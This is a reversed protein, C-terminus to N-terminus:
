KKEPEVFIIVKRGQSIYEVPSDLRESVFRVPVFTSGGVQRMPADLKVVSGNVLASGSDVNLRITTTGKQINVEKKAGNWNVKAGLKESVFRVPVYTRGDRVFPAAGLQFSKGEGTSAAKSGIALRITQGMSPGYGDAQLKKFIDATKTGAALDLYNGNLELGYDIRGTDYDIVFRHNQIPELNWVRNDNLRLKELATLQRLPELDYVANSSLELYRLGKLNKLPKLNQIQNQSAWLANLSATGAIASLDSVRNGSISLSDLRNLKKLPSLDHIQNYSVDIKQLETLKGLPELSKLANNSATIAQLGSLGSLAELSTVRNHSFRFSELETMASLSELSVIQNNTIDLERLQTLDSLPKLETLENGSLDLRTINKASELGDLKKIHRGALQLETLSEMDTIKLSDGESKGLTEKIALELARDGIVVSSEAAVASATVAGQWLLCLVLIALIGSVGKKSSTMRTNM